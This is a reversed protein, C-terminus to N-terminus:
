CIRLTTLAGVKSILSNLVTITDTRIDRRYASCDYGNSHRNWPAQVSRDGKDDDVTERENQRILPTLALM